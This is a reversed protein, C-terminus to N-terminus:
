PRFWTRADVRRYLRRSWFGPAVLASLPVLAGLWGRLLNYRELVEDWPLGAAYRGYLLEFALTLVLWMAGIRVWQRHVAEPYRRVFLYAAGFVLASGLISSLAQAEVRSFTPRFLAERLLDNALLALALVAWVLFARAYMGADGPSRPAEAGRAM